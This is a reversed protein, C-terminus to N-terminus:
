AIADAIVDDLHVPDLELRNCLEVFEAAKARDLFVDSVMRVREEGRMVAIGYAVYSGLDSDTLNEQIMEYETRM